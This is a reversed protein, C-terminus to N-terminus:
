RSLWPQPNQKNTEKWLEFHLITANDNDTYLRGISQRAKVKDNKKVYVSSLNSYVTLYNGHRIIVTNAFGPEMIIATVTGDFVTRAESNATALLDIGNNNIRVHKLAQHQQEGFTGVITYRGTVPAPLRGRNDAFNDSLQKEERTMAYGGKSEAVRKSSTAKAPTNREELERAAKAEAAARAVEQAIQSEIQRNLANAQRQKKQLDDQLQRQKRNLDAIEQKQIAEEEELKVYESERSKLLGSKEVRSKEM